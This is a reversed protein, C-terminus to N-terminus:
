AARLELVWSRLRGVDRFLNDAVDLAWRGGTGVGPTMPYGSFVPRGAPLTAITSGKTFRVGAMATDRARASPAHARAMNRSLWEAGVFGRAALAQPDAQVSFGTAHKKLNLRQGGLVIHGGYDKKAAAM